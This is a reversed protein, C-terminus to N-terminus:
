ADRGPIYIKPPEGSPPEADDPTVILGSKRAPAAGNGEIAAQVEDELRRLAAVLSESVGQSEVDDAIAQVLELFGAPNYTELAESILRRREDADQSQLLQNVIKLE